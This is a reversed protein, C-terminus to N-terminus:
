NFSVDIRKLVETRHIKYDPDFAERYEFISDNLRLSYEIEYGKAFENIEGEYFRLIIVNKENLKSDPNHQKLKSIIENSDAKQDGSCHTFLILLSFLIIAKM